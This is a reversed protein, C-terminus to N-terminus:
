RFYLREIITECLIIGLAWLSIFILMWMVRPLTTNRHSEPHQAFSVNMSQRQTVMRGFGGAILRGAM